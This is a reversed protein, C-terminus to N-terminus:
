RLTTWWDRRRFAYAAVPYLEHNPAVSQREDDLYGTALFLTETPEELLEGWRAEEGEDVGLPARHARGSSHAEGRQERASAADRVM